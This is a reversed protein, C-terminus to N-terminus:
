WAEIIKPLLIDNFKWLMTSYDIAIANGTYWTSRNGQLAYMDAMWGARLDDATVGYGAPGHDSWEVVRLAEGNLDPLVGAEAMTELNLQALATAAAETYTTYNPGSTGISFLATDNGYSNFDLIFPPDLFPAEPDAVASAPMNHLVVGDTLVPHTVIATHYRGYEPKSFHLTEEADLDFPALNERTPPVALLLKKAVITRTGTPSSVTLVVGTDNRTASTVTTNVLVDDGLLTAIEDYLRQNGDQIHYYSVLGLYVKIYSAPFSQLVTLTLVDEFTGRSGAGGGVSGWLLPLALTANYKEVFQGIPLLLDEPIEPGPPLNWFGPEIMEDYGNDVLANYFNLTDDIELTGDPATYNLLEQGSTFDIYDTTTTGQPALGEVLTLNDFRSIFDLADLYEFYIQVGFDRYIDLAADYYTDVHGGKSGLCLM